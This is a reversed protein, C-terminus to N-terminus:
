LLLENNMSSPVQITKWFMTDRKGDERWEKQKMTICQTKSVDKLNRMTKRSLELLMLTVKGCRNRWTGGQEVFSTNEWLAHRQEHDGTDEGGKMWVKFVWFVTKDRLGFEPKVLSMKDHNIWIQSSGSSLIVM